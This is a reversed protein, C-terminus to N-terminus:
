RFNSRIRIAEEVWDSLNAAIHAYTFRSDSFTPDYVRVIDDLRVTGNKLTFSSFPNSGRMSTMGASDKLGHIFVGLVGKRDNWAKQIEYKVWPRSSTDRGILVVLCSTGNLQNDIWRKIAPEGGLKVKEWDNDSLEKSGDEIAGINRITGTRWADRTHHFSFFVRRAM